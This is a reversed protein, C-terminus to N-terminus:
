EDTKLTLSLVFILVTGMACVPLARDL